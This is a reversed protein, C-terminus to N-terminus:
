YIRNMSRLTIFGFISFIMTNMDVVFDILLWSGKM